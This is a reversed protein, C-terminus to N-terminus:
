NPFDKLITLASKKTSWADWKEGGSSMKYAVQANILPNFLDNNSSLNYKEIRDPGMSGRMNIQFLGYSNDGTSANDNHAWPKATSEKIVIAWAMKLNDGSFGAIKLIDILEDNSLAYDKEYNYSVIYFNGRQFSIDKTTTVSITQTTTVYESEYINPAFFSMGTIISISTTIAYTKM